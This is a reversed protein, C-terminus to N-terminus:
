TPAPTDAMQSQPPVAPPSAPCGSPTPKLQKAAGEVPNLSTASLVVKTEEDDHVTVPLEKTM